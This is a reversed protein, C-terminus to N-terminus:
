CSAAPRSCTACAIRSRATRIRARRAEYDFSASSRAQRSAGNVLAMLDAPLRDVFDSPLEAPAELWRDEPALGLLTLLYAFEYATPSRRSQGRDSRCQHCLRLDGGAGRRHEHQRRSRGRRATRLRDCASRDTGTQAAAMLLRYAKKVQRLTVAAAGVSEETFNKVKSYSTQLFLLRIAQPDHRELLDSLPEFNGLSKSMKKNDFLLLGGHLWYQAMPPHLMLPESQAIENEHHPFILDAGGGHIDFGLGQPGAARAVDRLVRHALRPTRRRVTRVAM